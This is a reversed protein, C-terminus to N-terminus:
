LTINIEATYGLSETICLYVNKKKFVRKWPKGPPETTFFGGTLAPSVIQIGPGHLDWEGCLLQAQAGCKLRHDLAQSHCSGLM